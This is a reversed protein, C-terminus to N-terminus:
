RANPLAAMELKALHFGVRLDVDLAPADTASKNKVESCIILM